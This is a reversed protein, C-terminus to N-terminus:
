ASGEQRHCQHHIFHHGLGRKRETRKLCRQGKKIILSCFQAIGTGSSLCVASPLSPQAWSARAKRDGRCRQSCIAVRWVADYSWFMGPGAVSVEGGEEQGRAVTCRGSGPELLHQPSSGDQLWWGGLELALGASTERLVCFAESGSSETQQLSCQILLLELM